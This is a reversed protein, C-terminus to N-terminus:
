GSALDPLRRFADLDDALDAPDLDGARLQDPSLRALRAYFAEGLARAEPHQELALDFLLDEVVAYRGALEALRAMELLADASVDDSGRLAGALAAVHPALRPGALGLDANDSPALAWGLCRLAREYLYAAALPRREAARVLGVSLALESALLARWPEVAGAAALRSDFFADPLDELEELRLDLAASIEADLADDQAGNARRRLYEGLQEIYRMLYDRRTLM